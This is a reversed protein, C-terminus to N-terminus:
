GQLNGKDPYMGYIPLICNFRLVLIMIISELSNEAYILGEFNAVVYYVINQGCFTYSHNTHYLSSINM